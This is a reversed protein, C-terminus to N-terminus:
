DHAHRQRDVDEEGDVVNGVVDGLLAIVRLLVRDVRCAPEAQERQMRDPGDHEDPRHRVARLEVDLDALRVARAAAPRPAQSLELPHRRRNVDVGGHTERLHTVEDRCDAPPDLGQLALLGRFFLVLLLHSMTSSISPVYPTAHQSSNKLNLTIGILMHVITVAPSPAITMTPETRSVM